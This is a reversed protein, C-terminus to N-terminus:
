NLDPHVQAWDPLNGRMASLTLGMVARAEEDVPQQAFEAYWKIVLQEILGAERAPRAARAVRTLLLPLAEADQAPVLAEVVNVLSKQLIALEQQETM